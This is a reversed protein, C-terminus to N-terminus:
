IQAFELGISSGGAIVLHQPLVDLELISTNTLYPVDQLGPWDPVVARAGTNLFIQSAELVEGNVEVSTPSLFRGSGRYVRTNALGDMWSDLGDRSARVVMDKRTRIAAMDASVPGTSIGFEASRRALWAVRASAVLTKTPTCGDNVCTGGMFKRELLAVRRGSDSLRAALFPGAQGGGIVIADFHESM